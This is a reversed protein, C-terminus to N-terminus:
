QAHNQCEFDIIVREHVLHANGMLEQRKDTGVRPWGRRVMGGKERGGETERWGMRICLYSSSQFGCAIM